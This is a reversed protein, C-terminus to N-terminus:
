SRIALKMMEYMASLEEPADSGGWASEFNNL